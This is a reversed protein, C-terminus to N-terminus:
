PIRICQPEFSELIKKNVPDYAFRILTNERGYMVNFECFLYGNEEKPCQLSIKNLRGESSFIEALFEGITTFTHSECSELNIKRESAKFLAVLIEKESNAIKTGVVFNPKSKTCGLILLIIILYNIKLSRVM